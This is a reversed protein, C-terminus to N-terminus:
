QHVHLMAPGQRYENRSCTWRSTLLVLEMEALAVYRCAEPETLDWGLLAKVVLIPVFAALCHVNGSNNLLRVLCTRWKNHSLHVSDYIRPSASYWSLAVADDPM